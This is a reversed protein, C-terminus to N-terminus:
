ITIVHANANQSSFYSHDNINVKVSKFIPWSALIVPARQDNSLIFYIHVFPFLHKILLKINILLTILIILPLQSNSYKGKTNIRFDGSKTTIRHITISYM